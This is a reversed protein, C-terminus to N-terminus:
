GLYFLLLMIPVAMVWTFISSHSNAQRNKQTQQLEILESENDDIRDQLLEVEAM